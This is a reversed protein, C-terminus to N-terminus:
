PLLIANVKINMEEIKEFVMDRSIAGKQVPHPPADGALILLRSEAEWPFGNAGEYLAEYVAEPTDGGGLAAAGNLYRQFYTFDKTFVMKRTLYADPPYDRYLVMGIRWDVFESIIESMMPILMKKLAEIYKGMSGTTDLCIVIDVSKGAEKRLMDEIKKILDAPDAAFVFDGHGLRSIERFSAEIEDLYEEEEVEAVPKQIGQLIFPNDAFRGRYDAYPYNFARINIYTGDVMYVVGNRTYDFGYHVVWPIFIQFAEGLEPHPVPTSSVLSYIRDERPIMYGDLLRIEDGNIPNWEAARYAFNDERQSPDRTSETLLVSMINPKKRIFLHFGAEARQELRLDDSSISLDQSFVPIVFLSFFAIIMFRIM